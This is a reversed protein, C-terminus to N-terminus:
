CRSLGAEETQNPEVVVAVNMCFYPKTTTQNQNPKPRTKTQNQNPQVLQVMRQIVGFCHEYTCYPKHAKGPKVRTPDQSEATPITNLARWIWLNGDDPLEQINDELILASPTKWLTNWRKASPDIQFNQLAEEIQTHQELKQQVGMNQSRYLSNKSNTNTLSLGAMRNQVLQRKAPRGRDQHLSYSSSAGNSNHKGPPHSRSPISQRLCSVVGPPPYVGM